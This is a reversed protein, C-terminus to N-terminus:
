KGFTKSLYDVVVTEEEPSLQAGRKIMSDVISKWEASTHNSTEIRTVTHCVTCRVQVLSAGDLNTTPVPTTSSSCSSIALMMTLTFLALFLSPAKM